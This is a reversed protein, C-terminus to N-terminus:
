SIQNAHRIRCRLIIALSREQSLTEFCNEIFANVLAVAEPIAVNMPPLDCIKDRGEGGNLIIRILIMKERFDLDYNKYSEHYQYIVEKTIQKDTLSMHTM